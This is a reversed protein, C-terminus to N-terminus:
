LGEQIHKTEKERRYQEIDEDFAQGLLRRGDSSYVNRKARLMERESTYSRLGVPNKSYTKRQIEFFTHRTEPSAFLRISKALMEAAWDYGESDTDNMANLLKEADAKQQETSLPSEIVRQLESKTM